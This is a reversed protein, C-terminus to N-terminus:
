SLKYPFKLLTIIVELFAVFHRNSLKFLIQIPAISFKMFTLIHIMANLLFLNFFAIEPKTNTKRQYTLFNDM